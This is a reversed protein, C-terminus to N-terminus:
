EQHHRDDGQWSPTASTPWRWQTLTTNPISLLQRSFARVQMHLLALRPLWLNHWIELYRYRIQRNSQSVVACGQERAGVTLAGSSASTTIMPEPTAPDSTAHRRASAFSLTRIRSAPERM